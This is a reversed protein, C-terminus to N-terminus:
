QKQVDKEKSLWSERLAKQAGGADKLEAITYYDFPKVAATLDFSMLRDRRFVTLTVRQSARL